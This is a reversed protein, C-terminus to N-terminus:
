TVFLCRIQFKKDVSPFILGARTKGVKDIAASFENLFIAWYSSESVLNLMLLQESFNLPPRSKPALIHIHS